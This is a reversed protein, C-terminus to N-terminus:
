EPTVDLTKAQAQLDTAYKAAEKSWDDQNQAGSPVVIVNQIVSTNISEKTFGMLSAYFQAGKLWLEGSFTSIKDQVELCFQEKSQLRDDLTMDRQLTMMITTFQTTQASNMIRQMVDFDGGAIRLAVHERNTPNAILAKAFAMLLEDPVGTEYTVDFAM